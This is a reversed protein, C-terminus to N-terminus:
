YRGIYKKVMALVEKASLDNEDENYNDNGGVLVTYGGNDDQWGIDVICEEGKTAVSIVSVGGEGDNFMDGMDFGGKASLGKSKAYSTVDKILKKDEQKVAENIFEEFLKIKKM